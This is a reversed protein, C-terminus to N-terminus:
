EDPLGNSLEKLGKEVKAKIADAIAASHEIKGARINQMFTQREEELKEVEGCLFLWKLWALEQNAKRRQKLADRQLDCIDITRQGRESGNKPIAQGFETFALHKRPNADGEDYPSLLFPLEICNLEDTCNAVERNCVRKGAIPFSARKAGTNCRNCCPVLNRWDYAVWFYGGHEADGDVRGKPRYHDAAAYGAVETESECYACKGCFVNDLLWRKLESWVKPQFNIVNGAEVDKCASELAITAKTLWQEWWVAQDGLLTTPDFEARIM